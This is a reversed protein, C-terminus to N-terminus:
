WKGFIKKLICKFLNPKPQEENQVPQSESKEVDNSDQTKVQPSEGMESVTLRIFKGDYLPEFKIDKRVIETIEGNMMKNTIYSQYFDMPIRGVDGIVRGDNRYFLYLNEVETESLSFTGDSLVYLEKAM